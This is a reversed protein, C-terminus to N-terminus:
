WRPNKSLVHRATRRSDLKVRTQLRARKRKFNM